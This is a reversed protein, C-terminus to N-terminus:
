ASSLCFPVPSGVLKRLFSAPVGLANGPANHTSFGGRLSFAVLFVQLPGPPLCKLTPAGHSRDCETLEAVPHCIFSGVVPVLIFMQSFLLVKNISM